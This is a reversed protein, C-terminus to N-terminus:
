DATEIRKVRKLFVEGTNSIFIIKRGMGGGTDSSCPTVGFDELMMLTTTINQAGVNIRSRDPSSDGFMDAGGFIKVQLERPKIGKSEFSKMMKRISCDMYRLGETCSGDCDAKNRCIPLLGHCIAGIRHLPHYLTVSVCSGLVTTVMAPDTCFLMEGPKLFVQPLDSYLPSRRPMYSTRKNELLSLM